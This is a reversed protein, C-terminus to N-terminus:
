HTVALSISLNFGSLVTGLNFVHLFSSKIFTTITLIYWQSPKCDNFIIAADNLLRYSLFIHTSDNLVIYLPTTRSIAIYRHILQSDSQSSPLAVRTELVM